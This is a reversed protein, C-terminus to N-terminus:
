GDSRLIGRDGYVVEGQLVTASVEIDGFFERSFPNGTLVALDARRGPKLPVALEPFGSAEAAGMTYAFLANETSLRFEATPHMVAGPIGVLPGMPMGDSGFCLEFGSDSVLAYPNLKRSRDRGIRQECMSDPVQWVSTFNPQMSFVHVSTDWNGSWAPLLEEAHEVRIRLAKEGRLIDVEDILKGSVRDLQVLARGGIAHVMSQYGGLYAKLMGGYLMDDTMLLGPSTGDVFPEAVAATKAGFSGDLFFKVGIVSSLMEPENALLEFLEDADESHVGVTVGLKIDSESIFLASKLSEMSCVATIGCSFALEEASKLAQELVTPSPPFRKNFELAIGERITGTNWEVGEADAPLMQLMASNVLAMHGCVRRLFVPIDGTVLDLEKLSPLGSSEWTTEDFGEGRLIGESENAETECKVRALLDSYSRVSTLNLCVRQLGTWLIHCHSDVFSPMVFVDPCCSRAPSIDTIIGNQIRM